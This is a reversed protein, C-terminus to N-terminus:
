DSHKIRAVSLLPPFGPLMSVSQPMWRQSKLKVTSLVSMLMVEVPWAEYVARGKETPCKWLRFHCSNILNSFLEINPTLCFSIFYATGSKMFVQPWSHPLPRVSFDQSKTRIM